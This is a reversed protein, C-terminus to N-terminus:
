FLIGKSKKSIHDNINQNNIDNVQQSAILGDHSSSSSHKVEEDKMTSNEIFSSPEKSLNNTGGGALQQIAGATSPTLVNNGNSFVATLFQLIKAIIEQHRQHKERSTLTDEWLVAKDQQMSHLENSISIQHQRIASIDKVLTALSVEEEDAGRERNRKRTVLVLMEPRGRQFNPNSFEWREHKSDSILVGQQLHPIKHFDYM